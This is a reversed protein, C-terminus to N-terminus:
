DVVSVPVSPAFSLHRPGGSPPKRTGRFLTDYRASRIEQPLPELRDTRGAITVIGAYYPKADPLLASRIKSNVGDAVVLIDCTHQEGDQFALSVHKQQSASDTLVTADTCVKGFSLQQGTQQFHQLLTRQLNSRTIRLRGVPLGPPISDPVSFLTQFSPSAFTIARAPEQHHLLDDLVGLAHLVQLGGSDDALLPFDQVFNNLSIVKDYVEVAHRASETGDLTSGSTDAGFFGDYGVEELRDAGQNYIASLEDMYLSVDSQDDQTIKVLNSMIVAQDGPQFTGNSDKEVLDWLQLLAQKAVVTQEAGMAEQAAVKLRLFANFVSTPETQTAIDVYELARDLAKMGLNCVALVRATKAKNGEESYMHAASFFRSASDYNRQQFHNTAHTYVLNFLQQKCTSQEEKTLMEVTTEAACIELAMGEAEATVKSWSACIARFAAQQSVVEQSKEQPQLSRQLITCHRQDLKLLAESNLTPANTGLQALNVLMVLKFAKLEERNLDKYYTSTLVDQAQAAM